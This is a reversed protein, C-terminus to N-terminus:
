LCFHPLSDLEVNREFDWMRWTAFSDIVVRQLMVKLQTFNEFLRDPWVDIPAHLYLYDLVTINSSTLYPSWYPYRQTINLSLHPSLLCFIMLPIMLHLMNTTTNAVMMVLFTINKKCFLPQFLLVTPLHYKKHFTVSHAEQWIRLIAPACAGPIGPVNGGDGCTLSGSMCWPVHTLCTGHHMGPDSVLPKRQFWRGPFVNGANGDCACGAIKRIQYSLM